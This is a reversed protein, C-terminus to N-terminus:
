GRIKVQLPISKIKIICIEAWLNQQNFLIPSWVPFVTPDPVTHLVRGNESSSAGVSVSQGPDLVSWVGGSLSFQLIHRLM